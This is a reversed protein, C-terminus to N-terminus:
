LQRNELQKNSLNESHLILSAEALRKLSCALIHTHSHFHNRPCKIESNLSIQDKTHTVSNKNTYYQKNTNYQTM